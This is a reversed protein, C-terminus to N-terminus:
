KPQPMLHIKNEENNYYCVTNTESEIDLILIGDNSLFEYKNVEYHSGNSMTRTYVNGLYWGGGSEGKPITHIKVESSFDISSASNDDFFILVKSTRDATSRIVCAIDVVNDGDFDGTAIGNYGM